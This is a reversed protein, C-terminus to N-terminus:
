IKNKTLNTYYKLLSLTGESYIILFWEFYSNM